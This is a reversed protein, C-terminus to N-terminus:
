SISEVVENPGYIKEIRHPVSYSGQFPILVYTEDNGQGGQNMHYDCDQHNRNLCLQIFGDPVSGNAGDKPHTRTPVIDYNGSAIGPNNRNAANFANTLDMQTTKVETTQLGDPTEVIATLTLRALSQDPFKAAINQLNTRSYVTNRKGDAFVQVFGPETLQKGQLDSVQLLMLTMNTGGEVTSLAKALLLEEPDNKETVFDFALFSNHIESTSSIGVQKSTKQKIHQQEAQDLMKFLQPSNATNKGVHALLAEIYAKQESDSYDVIMSGNNALLKKHMTQSLAELQNQQKDIVTDVKGGLGSGLNAMAHTSTACTLALLAIKISSGLLTKKM